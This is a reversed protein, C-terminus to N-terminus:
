PTRIEKSYASSRMVFGNREFLKHSKQNPGLVHANVRLVEPRNTSLWREAQLLLESGYGRGSLEPAVYISVEAEAGAIDFRVAGVPRGDREGILLERDGDALAASFWAQHVAPDIPGANRSMARIEPHNRWELIRASDAPGAQRISIGTYGMAQAVRWTGNGDVAQLCRASMSRLLAPNELLASVHLAIEGAAKSPLEPAYVLGDLAADELAQRQNEAVCLAMSPLGVSCREWTATGGAGVALDAASMMQAMSESQVHCAFGQAHCTARIMERHPNEAGIVVEVLVNALPLTALGDLVRSTYGAGDAGGLFVFIRKVDGNRVKSQAHMSRFEERLMAYRPGLLIRCHGPVKGAYRNASGTAHNQDLLLDCDHDRDALDDIVMLKRTMGRLSSEWRRDLAYHDVVLWDCRLTRIANKTHEADVLQSTGLWDSHALDGAQDHVAQALLIVTHGSEELAGKLRDPLFRCIFFNEAGSRKLHQALALCRMVHGVGMRTSADVRFAVSRKGTAADPSIPGSM